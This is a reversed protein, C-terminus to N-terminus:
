RSRNDSAYATGLTQRLIQRRRFIDLANDLRVRDSQVQAQKEVYKQEAQYAKLKNEDSM